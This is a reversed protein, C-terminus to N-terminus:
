APVETHFRRRNEASDPLTTRIDGALLVTVLKECKLVNCM